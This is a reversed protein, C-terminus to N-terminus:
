HWKMDNRVCIAVVWYTGSRSEPWGNILQLWKVSKSCSLVVRGRGLWLRFGTKAIFPVPEFSIRTGNLVRIVIRFSGGNKLHPCHCCIFMWGILQNNPAFNYNANCWPFGAVGSLMLSSSCSDLMAWRILDASNQDSRSTNYVPLTRVKV